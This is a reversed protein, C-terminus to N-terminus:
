IWANYFEHESEAPSWLACLFQNSRPDTSAISTTRCVDSLTASTPWRASTRCTGPRHDSNAANRWLWTYFPSQTFCRRGIRRRVSTWHSASCMRTCGSWAPKWEARCTMSLGRRRRGNIGRKCSWAFMSCIHLICLAYGVRLLCWVFMLGADLLCRVFM